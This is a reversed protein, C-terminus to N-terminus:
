ASRWAAAQARAARKAEIAAIARKAKEMADELITPQILGQYKSRNRFTIRYPKSRQFTVWTFRKAVQQVAAPIAVGKVNLKQMITGWMARALGRLKIERMDEMVSKVNTYWWDGQLMGGGRRNMAYATPKRFTKVAWRYGGFMAREQATKAEVVERRKESVKAAAMASRATYIAMRNVMYVAQKETVRRVARCARRIESTNWAVTVKM